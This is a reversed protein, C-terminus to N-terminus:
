RRLEIYGSYEKTVVEGEVNVKVSFVYFYTGNPLDDGASVMSSETSKGDWNNDYNQGSSRYVMTGWRNFVELKSEQKDEIGTIVFKDNINDGNPSFANPIIFSRGQGLDVNGVFIFITGTDIREPYSTNYIIYRVSDRGYFSPLKKYEFMGEDNISAEGITSFQQGVNNEDMYTWSTDLKFYINKDPNILSDIGNLLIDNEVVDIEGILEGESLSMLDNVAILPSEYLRADGNMMVSCGGTATALISYVGGESKTGYNILNSTGLSDVPPVFATDNILLSYVVGIESGELVLEETNVYGTCCFDFIYPMPNEVVIITDTFDNFCGSNFDVAKVTYRGAAHPNSFFITDGVGVKFDVIVALDDVLQYGINVESSDLGIIIGSEGECYSAIGGETIMNFMAPSNKYIVEVRGMSLDCIEASIAIVEYNITDPTIATNVHWSIPNDTGTITDGIIGDALIYYKRGAESGDMLVDTGTAGCVNTSSVSINFKVPAAIETVVVVDGGNMDTECADGGYAGVVSYRGQTYIGLSISDAGDGQVENILTNTDDYVSYVIDTESHQMWLEVGPYNSCYATDESLVVFDQPAPKQTVAVEGNMSSTCGKDTIAVVTYLGVDIFKGFIITDGGGTANAWNLKGSGDDFQLTYDIALESGNIGIEAGDALDCFFGSGIMKFAIPLPNVTLTVRNLMEMECDVGNNGLVYYEGEENALDFLVANGTGAVAGGIQKDNGVGNGDVLYLSYLVGVESGELGFVVGPDGNCIDGAGTVGYQEIAGPVDIFITNDLVDECGNINAFVTYTASVDVVPDPFEVDNGDGVVINGTKVGGKALEYTVGTESSEVIVVAGDSCDTGTGAKIILTKTLDAFPKETIAFRGNMEITCSTVGDDRQATIFYTDTGTVEFDLLGGTGNVWEGTAADNEREWRYLVDAESGNLHLYTVSGTCYDGDSTVDYVVPLPDAILDIENNMASLCGVDPTVAMVSYRGAVNYDGFSLPALPDDITGTVTTVLVADRYLQYDIDTEQGAITINVGVVDDICFHGDQTAQLDFPAPLPVEVVDVTGNMPYRCGTSTNVIITYSGIIDYPGFTHSTGDATWTDGIDVGDRLVHYDVGSDSGSLVVDAGADDACFQGDGTVDYINYVGDPKIEFTNSMVESCLTLDDVALITYLGFTRQFGFTIEAGTGAVPAGVNGGYLLLQYSVGVDSNDLKIEHGSGDGCGDVSGAPNISYQTPLPNETVIIRNNMEIRSSPVTIYYAEVRYEETGLINDWQVANTGDHTITGIVADDSTRILEYTIGSQPTAIYISVGGSGACYETASSSVDLSNIADMVNMILTATSVCDNANYVNVSVADGDALTNISYTDDVSRAQVEVGNVFFQYEGGGTATFTVDTGAIIDTGTDATLGATPLDYITMTIPPAAASCNDGSTVSVHVEDGDVLTNTTYTNSTGNQVDVNNVYYVYNFYGATAEFTVDTGSCVTNGGASTIDLTIVPNPNVTMVLSVSNNSCSTVNDIVIVYIEDGDELTSTTYNSANGNQVSNDLGNRVLHFDYDYDDSGDAGSANFTVPNGECITTGDTISITAIVKNVVVSTFSTDTCSNADSVIVTYDGAQIQLINAISPNQLNSTFGEEGTWSYSLAGTGGSGNATLNLTEDECLPGNNGAMVTPSSYVTVATISSATNSCGNVDTVVVEYNGGKAVTVNNIVPNQDTSGFGDPGTWVFTYTGAGGAPTSSLNLTTKECLPGNNSATITPTTNVVVTTTTVNSCNGDNVTLTYVGAADTTVLAISPNQQNSTFGDPGSWNYTYAGTGETASGSLLLTGNECVPSNSTADAVPADYVVVTATSVASVCSNGDTVVVNYDGAQTLLINTIIPDKTTSTFGTPGTWSYTYVGDGGLPSAGLHLTEDECVPSDSGATVTPNENVIVDTSAPIVNACGNADTINVTYTGAQAQTINNITPNQDTSSYTGPGSWSFTYVGSGGVPTSILNLIGNDCVPGDNDATITPNANVVVVTTTVDTCTGDDVTLTYTGAQDITINTIVQSQASSTFGDPGTWSYTYAGTGESAGGTLTLTGGECVAGDNTATAVPADNVVVTTFVPISVCSNQDTATVTYDGAQTLAINTISPNETNSTYSNPGTWSFTYPTSGNDDAGASLQLTGFECVSGDNTPTVVPLANIVVTTSVTTSGCNNADTVTVEYDGAMALTVNNILPNEDTSTFGNPGTWAYTFPALGATVTTSLTLDGGVCIPGDNDAVAVPNENIIVDTQDTDSCGKSDTVTLTFSGTHDTVAGLITPSLDTSTFGNPGTWSYNFPSTGSTVSGTLNLDDGECKPSDSSASVVPTPNVTVTATGDMTNSCANDQTNRAEVTYDGADSVTYTIPNGDGSTPVTSVQVGDKYLFYEMGDESSQLTLDTTEGGCIVANAPGFSIATPTQYVYTYDYATELGGIGDTQTYEFVIVDGFYQSTVRDPYFVLITNTGTGTIEYWDPHSVDGGADKTYVDWTIGTAGPDWSDPVIDDTSSTSCYSIELSSINGNGGKLRVTGNLFSSRNKDIEKQVKKYLKGRKKLEKSTLLAESKNQAFNQQPFILLLGLLVILTNIIKIKKMFRHIDLVFILSVCPM